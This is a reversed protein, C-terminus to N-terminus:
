PSRKLTRLDPSGVRVEGWGKVSGLCEEGLAEPLVWGSWEGRSVGQGSRSCLGQVKYRRGM